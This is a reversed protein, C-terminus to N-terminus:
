KTPKARKARPKVDPVVVAEDLDHGAVAADYGDPAEALNDPLPAPTGKKQAARVFPMSPMYRSPMDPVDPLGKESREHRPHALAGTEAYTLVLATWDAPTYAFAKGEPDLDSWDPESRALSAKAVWNRASDIDNSALAAKAMLGCVRRTVREESLDDELTATAAAIDERSNNLVAREVTLLRSERHSPNRDILGNLRRARDKPTEDSVLDRYALWIAPHPAAAYAAELVDEARGLKGHAALLRAAIVAAPAFMPQLKAARVAYDLAQERMQADTATELQAASAAMLSARARESFLPSVLKRNLAGEVLALAEAWEGATIKAEFLTKFAWMAPKAQNYADTALRIAESRDGSSIALNMLGRLGALKLEPVTLMATYAARIAATDGAADAAFANLIRVLAVNDHLDVAKVAHRRAELGDGSAVALFGRTLIDEGQRRRTAARKREARQPSRSLWLALNWFCVAAFAMLGIVIVATAASTDIRYGLWVLSATGAEGTASLAVVVLIIIGLLILLTRIM